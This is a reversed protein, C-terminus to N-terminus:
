GKFNENIFLADTRSAYGKETYEFDYFRVLKFGKDTLLSLIDGFSSQGVYNEYFFVEVLIFQICNNNMLKSAGKLVNLEYGETDTKLFHIYPIKNEKCYEDLSIVKVKYKEIIKSKTYTRKLLSNLSSWSYENFELNDRKEGIAMNNLKLNKIDEFSHISCNPFVKKIKDISQGLNAGIDFILPNSTNIISEVAFFPNDHLIKIKNVKNIRYGLNYTLEKIRRKM